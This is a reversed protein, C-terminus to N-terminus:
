TEQPRDKSGGSPPFAAEAANIREQVAAEFATRRLDDMAVRIIEESDNILHGPRAANVADALTQALDDVRAHLFARLAEPSIKESADMIGVEQSHRGLGLGAFCSDIKGMEGLIRWDFNGCGGGAVDVLLPRRATAALIEM